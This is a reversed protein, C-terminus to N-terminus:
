EDRQAVPTLAARRPDGSRLRQPATGALHHLPFKSDAITRGLQSGPEIATPRLSRAPAPDAPRATLPRRSDVLVDAAPRSVRFATM